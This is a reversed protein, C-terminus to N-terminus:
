KQCKPCYFSARNSIVLKKIASNCDANSCKMGKRDYVNFYRQFQGSEGRGNSFDKISSGGLKIAKLLIKKTFLLIKKIESDTIRNIKKAPNIGSKFLIENVYINGLGSVFKQDMLFNKINRKKNRIKKKFYTFNFKEGLPDPGLIKLHSNFKYKENNEFKIFGFKRVDNYVLKSKDNFTFVVHDHKRNKEKELSYYFSTVKSINKKSIFIFKGTMGLHCIMIKGKEFFFLLYKSIRKIQQLKLGILEKLHKENIKYRLNIENIKINKITLNNIFKKLSKKVVEVEPLEPM